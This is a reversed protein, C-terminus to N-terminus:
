FPPTLRFILVLAVAKENRLSVVTEEKKNGPLTRRPECAVAAEDRVILKSHGRGRSGRHSTPVEIGKRFVM